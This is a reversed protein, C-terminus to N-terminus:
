VLATPKAPAYGPKSTSCASPRRDRGFQNPLESAQLVALGAPAIIDKARGVKEVVLWPRRRDLIQQILIYFANDSM